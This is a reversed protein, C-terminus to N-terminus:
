GDRKRRAIAVAAILGAGILVVEPGPARRAAPPVTEAPVPEVPDVTVAPATVNLVFPGRIVPQAALTTVGQFQNDFEVVVDFTNAGDMWGPYAATAIWGAHDEPSWRMYIPSGGEIALYVNLPQVGEPLNPVQVVVNEGPGLLGDDPLTVAVARQSVSIAGTKTATNGRRDEATGEYTYQTASTNQLVFRHHGHGLDEMDSLTAVTQGTGAILTFSKEAIRDNDEFFVDVVVSGGAQQIPPSAFVEVIPDAHDSLPPNLFLLFFALWTFFLLFGTGLWERRGFHSIDVSTRAYIFRLLYGFVAVIGLGLYWATSAGDLLEYAGWSVLAAIIGWLFLISTTRFSVLEKHIFADEDFDPVEFKYDDDGDAKADKKSEKGERKAM